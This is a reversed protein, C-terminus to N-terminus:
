VAVESWCTGLDAWVEAEVASDLLDAECVVVGEAASM